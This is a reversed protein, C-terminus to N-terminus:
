RSSPPWAFDVVVPPHDSRKLFEPDHIWAASTATAALAPTAIAYDVRPLSLEDLAGRLRPWPDVLGKAAFASMVDTRPRGDKHVEWRWKSYRERAAANWHDIDANSVANFDGIVLVERGEARSKTVRELVIRTEGLRREDGKFPWLHVVYVDLGHTRCALLGHHMRDLVRERVEIPRTSTLATSYGSEKLLAVHRHGWGAAERRLKAEDYGNLEQLAVLDPKQEALWAHVLRKREAGPLYPHGVRYNGFGVLVNYSIVRLKPLVAGDNRSGSACSALGVLLGLCSVLRYM